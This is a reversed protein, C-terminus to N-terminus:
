RLHRLRTYPVGADMAAIHGKVEDVEASTLKTRGAEARAEAYLRRIKAARILAERLMKRTM